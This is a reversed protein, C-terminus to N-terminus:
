YLRVTYDRTINKTGKCAVVFRRCHIVTPKKIELILIKYLIAIFFDTARKEM